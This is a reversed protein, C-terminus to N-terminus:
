TGRGIRGESTIHCTSRPWNEVNNNHVMAHVVCRAVYLIYVYSVSIVIEFYIHGM